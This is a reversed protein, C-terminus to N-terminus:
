SRPLTTASLDEKKGGDHKDWVHAHEHIRTHLLLWVLHYRRRLSRTKFPNSHWIHSSFGFISGSADFKRRLVEQGEGFYPLFRVQHSSFHLDLRPLSIGNSRFKHHLIAALRRLSGRSVKRPQLFVCGQM